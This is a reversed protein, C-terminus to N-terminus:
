ETYEKVLYRWYLVIGWDLYEDPTVINKGNWTGIWIELLGKVVFEIKSGAEPKENNLKIWPML